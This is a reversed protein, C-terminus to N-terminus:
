KIDKKLQDIDVRLIENEKKLDLIYLTLEEIKELLLRNMEGVEIGNSNVEEASPINPLHGKELIHRQVAELSLLDYDKTFVYDPWNGSLQVKVEETILKGDIAMRYGNPVTTTGVAVDGTYSAISGAESWVASGSGGNSPDNPTSISFATVISALNNSMDAGILVYAIEGDFRQFESTLNTGWGFLTFDATGAFGSNLNAATTATNVSLVQTTANNRSIGFLGTGSFDFMPALSGDSNISQRQFKNRMLVDNYDQSNHYNGALGFKSTHAESVDVYIGADNQTYNNTGSSLNFNTDILATGDGKAGTESWVITGGFGVEIAKPGSPDKWNMLKFDKGGSGKFYFIVDAKQWIGSAKASVVIQNQINQDDASPLAYGNAVAENLIAQYDSDFALSGYRDDTGMASLLFAGTLFLFVLFPKLTRKSILTPLKNKM